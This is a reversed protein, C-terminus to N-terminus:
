IKEIGIEEFSAKLNLAEKYKKTDVVYTDAASDHWGRPKAKLFSLAEIGIIRCLARVMIKKPEPKTGDEAIVMTGTIFKGISRQTTVEMAFLYIVTALVSFLRDTVGDMEYFWISFAPYDFYSLVEAIVGLIFFLAYVVATDIVLNLLRKHWPVLMDDTIVIGEM